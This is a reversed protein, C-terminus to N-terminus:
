AGENRIVERTLNLYSWAGRSRFDYYVVPLGHSSSEALVVDRPIISDFVSGPFYSRIEAVVDNSLDLEHSYMTLLLGSIKLQQNRLEQLERVVPLIQSLGEMAYYECQVPIIVGDSVSLALNPLGGLSPPCDIIVFDFLRRLTQATQKWFDFYQDKFSRVMELDSLEDHSPLLWLNEFATERIRKLFQPVSHLSDLFHSAGASMPPGAARGQESFPIEGVGSTANAQPDFDMLLVKRGSLGIGAALNVATTTKGVGGKQSAVTLCKGADNKAPSELSYRRRPANHEFIEHWNHSTM